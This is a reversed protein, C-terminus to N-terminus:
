KGGKYALELSFDIGAEELAREIVERDELEARLIFRRKQETRRSNELYRDLSPIYIWWKNYHDHDVKIGELKGQLLLRRVYQPYALGLYKKGGAIGKYNKKLTDESVEDGERIEPLLSKEAYSVEVVKLM